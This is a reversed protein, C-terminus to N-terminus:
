ARVGTTEYAIIKAILQNLREDLESSSLAGTSVPYLKRTERNAIFLAPYQITQEQFAANIWDRTAPMFDQFEPLPQNDLSLALVQARNSSAWQKIVPSFHVCHPCGSSFFFIFGHQKFFDSSGGAWIASSLLSLLLTLLAFRKM